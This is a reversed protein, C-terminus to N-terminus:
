RTRFTKPPKPNAGRALADLYRTADADSVFPGGADAKAVAKRIAPLRLAHCALCEPGFRTRWIAANPATSAWRGSRGSAAASPM